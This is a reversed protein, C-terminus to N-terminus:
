IGLLNRLSQNCALNVDDMSDAIGKWDSDMVDGVTITYQPDDKGNNDSGTRYNSTAEKEKWYGEPTESFPHSKATQMNLREIPTPNRKEYEAKLDDIKENSAHILKEFEGIAGLVKEYRKNLKAIDDKIDNQSDTIDTVDIVEDGEQKPSVDGGGETPEVSGDFPDDMGGAQEGGQPDFGQPAAGDGQQPPVPPQESNSPAGGQPPMGDPAGDPAPEAPEQPAAPEAEDVNMGTSVTYEDIRRFAEKLDDLSMVVGKNRM